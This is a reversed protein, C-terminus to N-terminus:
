TSKLGFVIDKFVKGREEYNSFMDFSACMPSFLICDGGRAQEFSLNVAEHIDKAEFIDVISKLSNKIKSKAEGFLVLSKVKNKLLDSIIPFDSGKDRGGAILIIPKISNRLAWITAEVNTAKSDNIFEVGKINKVFEMRHEIGKFDEFVKVCVDQGVGFVQAVKMVALQNPNFKREDFGSRRGYFYLIRAETEDAISRLRDDAYNLVIYDDKKQNMFIRKKAELYEDLYKYRDLHDPSFNLIVSVKPRFEKITELQFSSVELSVFDDKRIEDVYSTLPRGINGLVFVNRGLTKLVEGVLTTVTTKGNTGTIAIIQGPCYRYGLEIEGIVEIDNKKAWKIPECELPVGPSIVLCDAKEIVAQTHKGLEFDVNIKKLELPYDKQKLNDSKDSVFVSAGLKKLLKASSLGSSGLGLVVVNKGRFDIM